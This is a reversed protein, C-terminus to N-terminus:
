PLFSVELNKNKEYCKKSIKVRNYIKLEKLNTFNIYNRYTPDYTELIELKPFMDFSPLYLDPRDTILETLNTLFDINRINSRIISIKKLKM